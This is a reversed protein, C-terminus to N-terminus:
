KLIAYAYSLYTNLKLVVTRGTKALVFTFLDVTFNSKNRLYFLNSDMVVNLLARM